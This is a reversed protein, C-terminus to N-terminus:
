APLVNDRDSFKVAFVFTKGTFFKWTEGNKRSNKEGKGGTIPPKHEGEVYDKQVKKGM